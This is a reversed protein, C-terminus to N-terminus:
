SSIWLIGEECPKMIVKSLCTAHVVVVGQILSTCYKYVWCPRVLGMVSFVWPIFYLSVLIIYQSSLPHPGILVCAPWCFVLGGESLHCCDFHWSMSIDVYHSMLMVVVFQCSSFLHFLIFCIFTSGSPVVHFGWVWCLCFLCVWVPLELPESPDPWVEFIVWGM